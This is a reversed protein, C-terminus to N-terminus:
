IILFHNKKNKIIGEKKLKSIEMSLGSREVELYDALEQRNFPIDFSKSNSKKAQLNLYALLKERTSRKSTIEIKQHFSINKSAINKMLNFILQQHFGCSNTCTHMIHQCDILMVESKESAVISVPIASIEACAFSEAFIESPTVYGVISRNGYLDNRIIQIKGSLVIGINKSAEGESIIVEKKDYIKVKAKLCTLLNILSDDNIQNFLLCSRLVDFYKNM